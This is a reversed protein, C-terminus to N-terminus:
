DQRTQLRRLYHSMPLVKDKTAQRNPISDAPQQHVYSKSMEPQQHVYSENGSHYLVRHAEWTASTTFSRGTLASSVLSVPEIGANPAHRPSPCPLGGWYEQRSLGMPLPAQPAMTWLSVFLQVRSFCTPVCICAM